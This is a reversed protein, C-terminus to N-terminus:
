VVACGPANQFKQKFSPLKEIKKINKFNLHQKELDLIFNTVNPFNETIQFQLLNEFNLMELFRLSKRIEILIILRDFNYLTSFKSVSRINTSNWFNALKSIVRFMKFVTM